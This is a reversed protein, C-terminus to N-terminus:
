TSSGGALAARSPACRRCDQPTKREMLLDYAHIAQTTGKCLPCNRVERTLAARLRLVEEALEPAAAILAANADAEASDGFVEALMGPPGYVRWISCKDNDDATWPGPTADALLKRLEDDTM